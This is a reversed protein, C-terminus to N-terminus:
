LTGMFWTPRLIVCEVDLSKIYRGVEDLLLGDGVDKVSGSLLVLRKVGNEIACDIFAKMLQVCQMVPPAVLFIAEPKLRLVDAYTSDDLWDFRVARFNPTEPKPARRSALVANRGSDALLPAIRSAIKGTGGTLLICAM